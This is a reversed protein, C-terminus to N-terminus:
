KKLLCCGFFVFLLAEFILVVWVPCIIAFLMGFGLWLAAFGIFNNFCGM